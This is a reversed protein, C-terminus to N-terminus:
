PPLFSFPNTGSIKLDTVADRTVGSIVHGRYILMDSRYKALIISFTNQGRQIHGTGGRIPFGCSIGRRDGREEATKEMGASSEM